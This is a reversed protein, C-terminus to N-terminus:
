RVNPLGSGVRRYVVGVIAGATIIGALGAMGVVLSDGGGVFLLSLGGSANLSGHLIAAGLVSGCTYRIYSFIPSWVTCFLVMMVIGTVPRGPYTHGMAVLPAHWIGWILGIVLSSRWFGLEELERYMFGRWGIEEGLGTIAHVSIGAVLSQIMLIGVIVPAGYDMKQRVGALEGPPIISSLREFFGEMGPSFAVGPFLLSVGGVVWAMGVPLLWAVVYWRNPRFVVGLPKGVDEGAILKRVIVTALLPAFMYMVAVVIASTTNWEGGMLHYGIALSWSAGFTILLYSVIRNLRVPM